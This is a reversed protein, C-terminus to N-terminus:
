LLYQKCSTRRFRQNKMLEERMCLRLLDMIHLSGFADFYKKTELPINYQLLYTRYNDKTVMIKACRNLFLSM